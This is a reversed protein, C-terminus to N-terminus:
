ATGSFNTGRDDPVARNIPTEIVAVECIRGPERETAQEFLRGSMVHRDRLMERTQRCDGGRGTKRDSRRCRPTRLSVARSSNTDTPPFFSKLLTGMQDIAM